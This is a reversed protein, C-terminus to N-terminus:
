AQGTVVPPPQRTSRQAPIRGARVDDAWLSHHDQAWAEDVYGTRMAGYAGKVGVTGMYIHAAFMAMMVVSAAAHVMHAVQMDGRTYALGPVLMDLVLGSISVLAGTVLVGGWFLLKEGGNFRHSPMEQGGFMGGARSLWAVDAAKPLNDRAFTAIMVLLGVVFLPGVVNHTTKLAFTMLGFLTGGLIPMLVYKGFAMVIGSVALVVFSIAVTWHTARELPTFREIRRGTDPRHGVIPGRTWYMIALALLAIGLLAGGYPLIVKNRVQRWAEGASNPATGPYDVVPQILTGMEIGPLSTFGQQTGSEKVARWFPANNGPQSVARQANTEGPQPGPAAAPVAGSPTPAAPAATGQAGAAAVQLGFAVTVVVMWGRIM